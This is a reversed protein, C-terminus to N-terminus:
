LGEKSCRAWVLWTCTMIRKIVPAEHV